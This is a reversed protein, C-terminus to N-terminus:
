CETYYHITGIERTNVLECSSSELFRKDHNDDSAIVRAETEDNALVIAYAGDYLDSYTSLKYLNPKTSQGDRDKIDLLMRVQDFFEIPDVGRNCMRNFMHTIAKAKDKDLCEIARKGIMEQLYEAGGMGM